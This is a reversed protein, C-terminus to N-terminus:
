ISEIIENLKKASKEWTFKKSQALGKKQMSQQLVPNMLVRVINETLARTDNADIMIGADGVVEPLSSNNSTIVPVGCAMAELPPMGFREYFSPYVFLEAGSYLAPLDDDDVYGTKIISYKKSLENYKSELEGDLWGKGGVLVLSYATKIHEPLNAFANLVGLLNKRPELTCVSLIYTKSIMYKTRVKEIEAKPKPYYEKHNVAPSIITIKSPIIKYYEVIENKSNESITIIHAAKNITKPVFKELYERNKPSSFAPHLIYSIDYLVPIYKTNNSVPFAVFNFFLLVDYKRLAVRDYAPVWPLRKFLQYYVFPPMWRVIRYRFNDSVNIPMTPLKKFPMTLRIVEYKNKSPLKIASEILRKAYQGVGTRDGFFPNGEIGTNM